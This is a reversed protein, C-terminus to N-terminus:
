RGIMPPVQAKRVQQKEAHEPVGALNGLGKVAVGSDLLHHGVILEIQHDGGLYQARGASRQGPVKSSRQNHGTGVSKERAHGGHQAIILVRTVHREDESAVGILHIQSLSGDVGYDRFHARKELLQVFFQRDRDDDLLRAADRAARGNLVDDSIHCHDESIAVRTESIWSRQRRLDDFHASEMAPRGLSQGAM